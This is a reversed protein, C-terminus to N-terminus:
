RIINMQGVVITGASQLRVMYTGSPIGHLQAPIIMQGRALSTAITVIVNGHLDIIDLTSSPDYSPIDMLIEVVDAAPNM